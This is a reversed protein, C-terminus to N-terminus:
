ALPPASPELDVTAQEIPQGTTSSASEDATNPPAPRPLGVMADSYQQANESPGTANGTRIAPADLMLDRPQSKM